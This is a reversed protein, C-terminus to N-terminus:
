TIYTYKHIGTSTENTAVKTNIHYMLYAALNVKKRSKQMTHAKIQIM